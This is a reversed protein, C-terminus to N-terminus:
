FLVREAHTSREPQMTHEPHMKPEPQRARQSYEPEHARIGPSRVSQFEQTRQKAEILYLVQRLEEARTALLTLQKNFITFIATTGMNLLLSIILGVLTTVLAISMGQLITSGDLKGAHFTQFIGWVTGLLGLAGASDSLYGMIRHFSEFSQREESLFQQVDTGIPITQRTKKFTAIMQHLLRAARNKTDIQVMKDIRSLDNLEITKNLLSSGRKKQRHEVLAQYTIMMIGVGTLIVFPWFLWDTMEIINWVSLKKGPTATDPQELKQENETKAKQELKAKAQTVSFWFLLAMVLLILFLGASKMRLKVGFGTKSIM